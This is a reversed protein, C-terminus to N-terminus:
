RWSTGTAPWWPPSCQARQRPPTGSGMTGGTTPAAQLALPPPSLLPLCAPLRTSTLAPAPERTEMQSSIFSGCLAQRPAAGSCSGAAARSASAWGMGAWGAGGRAGLWVGCAGGAGQMLQFASPVYMVVWGAARAWAVLSLLAVSKGTGAWGDLLLRRPAAGADAAAALDRLCRRALVARRGTAAFEAQAGRCGYNPQNVREEALAPDQYFRHEAEPAASEPLDFYSNVPVSLLESVSRGSHWAAAAAAPVATAPPPPPSPASAADADAAPAAVDVAAEVAGAVSAAKPQKAKKGAAAATAHRRQQQQQQQQQPGDEGSAAAQWPPDAVGALLGRWPATSTEVAGAAPRMLRGLQAAASRM